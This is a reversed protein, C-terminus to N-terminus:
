SILTELHFSEKLLLQFLVLLNAKNIWSMSSSGLKEIDVDSVRDVVLKRTTRSAELSIIDGNANVKVGMVGRSPHRITLTDKGIKAIVFDRTRSGALLKQNISDADTKM